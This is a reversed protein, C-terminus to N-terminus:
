SFIFCKNFFLRIFKPYKSFFKKAVGGHFTVIVKRRLIKGTLTGLIIPYFGGFYSCGHSHIIDYRKGILLFPYILFPRIFSRGSNFIKIKVGEQLLCNTLIEVQGSIGGVNPRFNTVFLVSTPNNNGSYRM